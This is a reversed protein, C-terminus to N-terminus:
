TTSLPNRIELHM